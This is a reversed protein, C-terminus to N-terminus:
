IRGWTATECMRPCRFDDANLTRDWTSKLYQPPFMQKSGFQRCAILHQMLLKTYEGMLKKATPVCQGLESLIERDGQLDTLYQAFTASVQNVTKLVEREMYMDTHSAIHLDTLKCQKKTPQICCSSLIQDLFMCLTEDVEPDSTIVLLSSINLSLSKITRGTTKNWPYGQRCRSSSYQLHGYYCFFM